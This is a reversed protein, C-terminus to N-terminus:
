RLGCCGSCDLYLGATLREPREHLLLLAPQDLIGRGGVQDDDDVRREAALEGIVNGKVRRISGERAGRESRDDDIYLLGRLIARGRQAGKAPATAGHSGLEADPVRATAGGASSSEAPAPVLVSAPQVAGPDLLLPLRADYM